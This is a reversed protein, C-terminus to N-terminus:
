KGRTYFQLQALLGCLIVGVAQAAQSIGFGACPRPCGLVVGQQLLAFLQLLFGQRLGAAQYILVHSLQIVDAQGACLRAKIDSLTHSVTGNGCLLFVLIGNLGNASSCL